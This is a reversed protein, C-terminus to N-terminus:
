ETEDTDKPFFLDLNKELRAIHRGSIDINGSVNIAHTETERWGCHAKAYFIALAPNIKVEQNTNEDIVKIGLMASKFINDFWYVFATRGIEYAEGLEPFEKLAKFFTGKSCNLNKAITDVISGNGMM